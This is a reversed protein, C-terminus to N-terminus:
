ALGGSSLLAEREDDRFGEPPLLHLKGAQIVERALESLPPALYSRKMLDRVGDPVLPFAGMLFVVISLVAAGKTVGMVTGGVRDLSQLFLFGAFRHLLWGALSFSFYLAFFLLVFAVAKLLILSLKLSDMLLAAVPEDYRVAVMFGVFLGALSFSERFLGKFYGRLAFLSLLVVLIPDIINVL